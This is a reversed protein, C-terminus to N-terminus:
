HNQVVPLPPTHPINMSPSSHHNGLVAKIGRSDTQLNGSIDIADSGM